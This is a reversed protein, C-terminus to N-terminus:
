ARQCRRATRMRLRSCRPNATADLVLLVMADTSREREGDREGNQTPIRTDRVDGCRPIRTDRVDGCRDGGVHEAAKRGVHGGWLSDPPGGTAGRSQDRESAGHGHGVFLEYGEDKWNIHRQPAGEPFL